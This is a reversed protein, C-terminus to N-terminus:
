SVKMGTMYTVLSSIFVNDSSTEFIRKAKGAAEKDKIGPDSVVEIARQRCEKIKGANLLNYIDYQHRFLANAVTGTRLEISKKM